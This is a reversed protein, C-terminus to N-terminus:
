KLLIFQKWFKNISPTTRQQKVLKEAASWPYWLWSTMNEPETRKPIEGEKLKCIFIDCDFEEDNGLFKIRKHPISLGTEEYTERHAAQKGNEGEETKGCPVQYKLYM